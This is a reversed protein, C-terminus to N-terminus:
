DQQSTYAIQNVYYAKVIPEDSGVEARGPESRGM